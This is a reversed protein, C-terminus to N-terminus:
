LVLALALAIGRRGNSQRRLVDTASRPLARCGGRRRAARGSSRARHPAAHPGCQVSIWMAEAFCVQSAGVGILSVNLLRSKLTLNWSPHIVIPDLFLQCNVRRGPLHSLLLCPALPVSGLQPTPPATPPRSRREGCPLPPPQSCASSGASSANVCCARLGFAM